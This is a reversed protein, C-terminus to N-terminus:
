LVRATRGIENILICSVDGAATGDGAPVPEVEQALVPHLIGSNSAVVFLLTLLLSCSKSFSVVVQRPRRSSVPRM